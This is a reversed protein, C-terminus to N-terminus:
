CVREQWINVVVIHQVFIGSINITIESSEQLLPLLYVIEM